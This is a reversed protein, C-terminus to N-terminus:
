DEGRPVRVRTRRRAAEREKARQERNARGTESFFFGYVLGSVFWILGLAALADATTM